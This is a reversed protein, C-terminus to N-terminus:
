SKLCSLDKEDVSRTRKEPVTDERSIAKDVRYSTDTKM